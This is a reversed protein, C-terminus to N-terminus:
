LIQTDQWKGQGQQQKRKARTRQVADAIAARMRVPEPKALGPDAGHRARVAAKELRRQRRNFRARAADAKDRDWTVGAVAGAVMVICDVPCPAICLECGSCDRVLVTHMQGAAGVIADVPCAQICKTCGICRAEDIRAIRFATHQGHSANLALRPRELLGALAAIVASGGPPCQNIEARNGAIAEAYAYCSRYGCKRCQTQPLLADVAQATQTGNDVAGM